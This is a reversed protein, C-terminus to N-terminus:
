KVRHRRRGLFSAFRESFRAVALGVVDLLWRQLGSRACDDLSVRRSRGLHRDLWRTAQAAVGADDVEVLTELNVLSLPDLNFSGVLLRQGDVVAAKAHLTSDMWEHIHVGSQLLTRYLRMTAARAFVVDSRGALLLHVAVGRKAARRLARVFAM